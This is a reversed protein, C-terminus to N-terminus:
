SAGGAIVVEALAQRVGIKAAQRASLGLTILNFLHQMDYQLEGDLYGGEFAPYDTLHVSEPDAEMRLNRWMVETVFPICPALLRCFTKLTTYLTQYAALKDKRGAEDLDVVRSNFRDKCRRVYWNSLYRDVFDEAAIAFAMV